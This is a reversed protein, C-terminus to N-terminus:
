GGMLELVKLPVQKFLLFARQRIDKNDLLSSVSIFDNGHERVANIAKNQDHGTQRETELCGYKPM